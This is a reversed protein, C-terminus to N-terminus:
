ENKFNEILDIVKQHSLTGPYFEIIEAVLEKDNTLLITLNLLAEDEKGNMLLYAVLRAYILNNKPQKELGEYLLNIGNDLNEYDKIVEAKDLWIDENEEDYEVVKNYAIIAEDFLGTKAM